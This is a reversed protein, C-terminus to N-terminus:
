RGKRSEKGQLKSNMVMEGAGSLYKMSLQDGQLIEKIVVMGIVTDIMSAPTDGQPRAIKLCERTICTGPKLDMAAYLGRRAVERSSEEKASPKKDGDGLMVEVKRSRQIITRIEGEDSSLCQDPGPLNRDITFHKEILVAGHAVASLVALDGEYHDSYGVDRGMTERMTKIVLINMEIEDPPYSSVCHLPIVCSAGNEELLEIAEFVEKMYGMGTSFIVPKNYSAITKMLPFNTLDGSAIKFADVGCSLLMEASEDDFPTSIFNMGEDRCIDRLYLHAKEDLESTKFINYLEPMKLPCALLESKYTQFKVGEAGTRAAARIMEAALDLDGNHNLGIEALFYVKEKSAIRRNGIRFEPM